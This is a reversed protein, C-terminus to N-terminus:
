LAYTPNECCPPCLSKPSGANSATRSGERREVRPHERVMSSEQRENCNIPFESFVMHLMLRSMPLFNLSGITWTPSRPRTALHSHSSPECTEHATRTGHLGLELVAGEFHDGGYTPKAGGCRRHLQRPPAFHSRISRTPQLLRVSVHSHNYLVALLGHLVRDRLDQCHVCRTKRGCAGPGGGRRGWSRAVAADPSAAPVESLQLADDLFLRASRMSKSCRRVGTGACIRSCGQCIDSPSPCIHPTPRAAPDHASAAKPCIHALDQASTAV